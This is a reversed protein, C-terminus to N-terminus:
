WRWDDDPATMPRVVRRSKEKAEACARDFGDDADDGFATLVVAPDAVVREYVGQACGDRHQGGWGCACGEDRARRASETIRERLEAPNMTTVVRDM